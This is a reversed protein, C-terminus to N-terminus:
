ACKYALAREAESLSFHVSLDIIGNVIILGKQGSCRKERVIYRLGVSLQRKELFFLSFCNKNKMYCVENHLIFQIKCLCFLVRM